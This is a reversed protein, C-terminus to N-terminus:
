HGQHEGGPLTTESTPAGYWEERWQNMEEIEASQASIIAEALAQTEADSGEDIEVQAMEIASQHHPVMMDIFARDFPEATELTEMEEAGMEETMGMSGHDASGVPGGFLREHISNLQDIESSQSEIIQEALQKIEPHEAREIAIEAMEIASEHHPVMESVFAGDTSADAEDDQDMGAFMLIAAIVVAALAGVLALVKKSM